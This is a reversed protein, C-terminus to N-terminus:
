NRNTIDNQFEEIETIPLETKSFEHGCNECKEIIIKHTKTEDFEFTSYHHGCTLCLIRPRSM